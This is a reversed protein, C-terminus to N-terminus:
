SDYWGAQCSERASFPLGGKRKRGGEKREENRRREEVQPPEM